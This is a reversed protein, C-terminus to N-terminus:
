GQQNTLIESVTFFSGFVVIIDSRKVNKIVKDMADMVNEFCSVSQTGTQSQHYASLLQQHNAGRFCDLSAFYYSDVQKNIETLTGAMDKDALMAVVAHVKVDSLQKNLKLRKLQCALYSASQPNHAVDLYLDCPYGDLPQLRGVLQAKQISEILQQPTIPLALCEIVALATSANQIPMLTHKIPSLVSSGQWQWQENELLQYQFASGALKLQAGIAKAHEIVSNPTDLDGCIAPKNARFIGAKEFGIDERNDGLWDIHDIGITTIVSIDPEVMNTADLRGGLGVELLIFDCQQQKLLSLCALTSFEFYSLSTSKRANEVQAFAQCHLQDNLEHKNIRLRENYREIHPSSFVGVKYGADLLIQELFACTTGKGNTGAVTIVTADFHILGLRKGVETIRALGLDIESSHLQELHSLWVQLSNSQFPSKTVESM